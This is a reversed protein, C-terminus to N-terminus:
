NNLVLYRYHTFFHSIVASVSFLVFNTEVLCVSFKSSPSSGNLSSGKRDTLITAIFGDLSWIEPVIVITICIHCRSGLVYSLKWITEVDALM